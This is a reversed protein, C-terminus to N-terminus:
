NRKRKAIRRIQKENRNGGEKGFPFSVKWVKIIVTYLSIDLKSEMEGLFAAQLREAM